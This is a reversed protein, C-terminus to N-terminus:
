ASWATRAHPVVADVRASLEALSRAVDADDYREARLLEQSSPAFGAIDCLLTLPVRDALLATVRESARM